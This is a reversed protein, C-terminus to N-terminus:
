QGSRGRELIYVKGLTGDVRIRDGSVIRSAADQCSVAAPIGLERAVIVAHSLPAGIDTVLASIRPFVKVWGINAAPVVLIEGQEISDAEDIDSLVRAIGECQGVAGPIGCVTDEDADDRNEGFRYYGGRSGGATWEEVTFRGRITNPFNPYSCQREYIERRRRVFALCREDGKLLEATEDIYLMFIDDGTGTLEGAKKLYERIMCFFRLADSRIVERGYVADSYSKLMKGLKSSYEPYRSDFERVAQRHREEQAAKMQKASVPSNRYEEIVNDPFNPDEYPYPLALEMENAHRHGYRRIYDEREMRGETVDELALLTGLSEICGSGSCDSLLRDALDAGCIKELKERTTFLPKVSLGTMIVSLTANMFPVCKEEWIRLLQAKSRAGHILEVIELSKETIHGKIKKSSYERNKKSTFSSKAMNLLSKGIKRRDFRYVPIEIGEPIGGAIERILSFAKKKSVGFSMIMSCVGSINLYLQGCVNSILPIGITECINRLMSYTVPSVPRLFIEGVNTKSLLLEGELSDNIDFNDIDNEFLTTIPRCQLLYLKRDAIAFEIDVPKEASLKLAYKLMKGAYPRMEDSGRCESTLADISFEGDMGEGSVLREGDGHVYSGKMVGRDATVPDATFLVGAMDAHVFEQIIVATGGTGTNREEAYVSVRENGASKAVRLVAGVIDERKVDIVTEYAGAFSNEGGDEGIASSRVAYTRSPDLRKIFMELEGLAKKRIGGNEFADATIVYGDPVPLHMRIMRALGEAKGGTNDRDADKLAYIYM